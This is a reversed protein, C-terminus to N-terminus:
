GLRLETGPKPGFAGLGAAKARFSQTADSPPLINPQDPLARGLSFIQLQHLLM